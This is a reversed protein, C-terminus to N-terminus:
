QYNPPPEQVVFREDTVVGDQVLLVRALVPKLAPDKLRAIEKEFATKAKDATTVWTSSATNPQGVWAQTRIGHLDKTAGEESSTTFPVGVETPPNRRPQGLVFQGKPKRGLWDWRGSQLKHWLAKEDSCFEIYRYVPGSEAVTM